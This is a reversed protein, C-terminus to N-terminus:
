HSVVNKIETKLLYYLSGLGIFLHTIEVPAMTSMKLAGDWIGWFDAMLGLANTLINTQFVMRLTHEDSSHRVLFNIMGMGIILGGMGRLVSLTEVSPAIGLLRAAAAPGFFMLAGFVFSGLASILLFLPRKM